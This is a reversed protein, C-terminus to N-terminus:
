SSSSEPQTLAKGKLLAMWRVYQSVAMGQESALREIAARETPTVLVEIKQSRKEAVHRAM